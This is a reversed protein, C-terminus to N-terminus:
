VFTILQSILEGRRQKMFSGNKRRVKLEAALDFDEDEVAHRKQVELDALMGGAQLPSIYIFFLLSSCYFLTKDPRIRRSLEDMGRECLVLFRVINLFNIM